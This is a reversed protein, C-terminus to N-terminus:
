NKIQPKDDSVIVVYGDLFIHQAKLKTYVYIMELGGLRCIIAGVLYKWQGTLQRVKAQRHRPTLANHKCLRSCIAIVSGRNYAYAAMLTM